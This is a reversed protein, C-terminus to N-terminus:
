YPHSLQVMFFASCPLIWAKTSHDQLVSKLTGRVALFDFWAIRFSILGSYENSYCESAAGGISPWRIHLASENSFVRISPFISPLLLIPCCLILHIADDVWHVHTQALEPFHHLVSFAPTHYDMPWLSFSVVSLSLLLVIALKLSSPYCWQICVQVIPFVVLEQSSAFCPELM